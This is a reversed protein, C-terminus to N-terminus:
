RSVEKLPRAQRAFRELLRFAQKETLNPFARERLRNAAHRTPTLRSTPKM